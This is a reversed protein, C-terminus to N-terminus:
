CWFLCGTLIKPEKSGIEYLQKDGGCIPDAIPSPLKKIRGKM